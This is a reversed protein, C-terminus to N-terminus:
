GRHFERRCSSAQERCLLASCAAIAVVCPRMNTVRLMLFKSTNSPNCSSFQNSSGHGGAAPRGGMTSSIELEGWGLFWRRCRVGCLLAPAFVMLNTQNGIPSLDPIPRSVARLWCPRAGALRSPAAKAM